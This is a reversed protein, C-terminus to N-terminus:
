FHKLLTKALSVKFKGHLKASSSSYIYVLSPKFKCFNWRGGAPILTYGDEKRRKANKNIKKPEPSQIQSHLDPQSPILPGEAEAEQTRPNCTHESWWAQSLAKM